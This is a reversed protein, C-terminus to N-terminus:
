NNDIRTCNYNAIKVSPSVIIKYYKERLNEVEFDFEDQQIDGNNKKQELLKKNYFYELLYENTSFNLILMPDEKDDCLPFEIDFIQEFAIEATIEKENIYDSIGFLYDLSVNFKKSIKLAKDLTLGSNGKEISYLTEVSFGNIDKVFDEAKLGLNKQLAKVRNRAIEKVETNESFNDAKKEKDEDFIKQIKEDRKIEKM